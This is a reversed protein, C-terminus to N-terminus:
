WAGVHHAQLGHTLYGNNGWVLGLGAVDIMAQAEEDPVEGRMGVTVERYKIGNAM